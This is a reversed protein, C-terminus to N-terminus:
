ASPPKRWNPSRLPDRLCMGNRADASKRPRPMWEEQPPAPRFMLDPAPIYKREALASNGGAHARRGRCVPWHYFSNDSVILAPIGNHDLDRLEPHNGWSDVTAIKRFQKGCEFVLLMGGGQRGSPGALALKPTGNGTIDLGAVTNSGFRRSEFSEETNHISVAAKNSFKLVRGLGDPRSHTSHFRFLPGAAQERNKRGLKERATPLDQGPLRWLNGSEILPGPPRFGHSRWAIPFCALGAAVVAVLAFRRAHKRSM